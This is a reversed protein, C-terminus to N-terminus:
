MNKLNVTLGPNKICLYIFDYGDSTCAILKESDDRPNDVNEVFGFFKVFFLADGIKLFEEVSYHNYHKLQKIKSMMENCENSNQSDDFTVNGILIQWMRDNTVKMDYDTALQIITCLVIFITNLNLMRMGKGNKCTKEVECRYRETACIINCKHTESM